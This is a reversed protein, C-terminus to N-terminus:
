SLLAMGWHAMGELLSPQMQLSRSYCRIAKQTENQRFLRKGQELVLQAQSKRATPAPPQPPLSARHSSAGIIFSTTRKSPFISEKLHRAAKGRARQLNNDLLAAVVQGQTPRPSAARTLM